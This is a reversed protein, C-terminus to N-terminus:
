VVVARMLERGPTIDKAPALQFPLEGCISAARGTDAVRLIALDKAADRVVVDANVSDKSGALTVGIRKADSVVHWNTGILGSRTLLFGTGTKGGEEPEEKVPAAKADPWVRLFVIDLPGKPTSVSGKLVSDGELLLTTGTPKGHLV